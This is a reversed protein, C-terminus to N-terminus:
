KLLVLKRVSIFDTAVMEYFYIGAPVLIGYYNTGDWMIGYNGPHHSKQVLIKIVQGRINIIVIKIYDYHPVSYQIFTIPNFTYPYM